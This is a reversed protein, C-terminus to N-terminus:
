PLIICLPDKYFLDTPSRVFGKKFFWLYYIYTFFIKKIKWFGDITAINSFFLDTKQKKAWFRRPGKNISILFYFFYMYKNIKKKWFAWVM